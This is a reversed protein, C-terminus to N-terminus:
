DKASLLKLYKSIETQGREKAFACADMEHMNEGSYKVTYDIGRKVLLRVMEISGALVAGFLPNREPESVDLEAGSELLAHAVDIHGRNAASNLASGGFTGGKSNPDLGHALLHQVLKISGSSAAVHLWSGFPTNMKLAEPRKALLQIFGDVDDSQCAALMAMNFAKDNSM